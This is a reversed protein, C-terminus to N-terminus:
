PTIGESAEDAWQATELCGLYVGDADRVASYRVNVNRGDKKEVFVAEDRWGSAFESLMRAIGPRSSETHCDLVDRDLCAPTRSFIRYASYYRVLGEADVFTIDARLGAFVVALEAPTLSGHDFSIRAHAM